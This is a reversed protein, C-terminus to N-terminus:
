VGIYDLHTPRHVSSRSNASTLVLVRPDRAHHAVPGTLARGGTDPDSRLIGLGTGPIAVLRDDDHLDYERYGLFTFN